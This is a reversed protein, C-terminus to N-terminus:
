FWIGRNAGGHGEQTISIKADNGPDKRSQQSGLLNWFSEGKEQRMGLARRYWDRWCKTRWGSILVGFDTIGLWSAKRLDEQGVQEKIRCVEAQTDGFVEWAICEFANFGPLEEKM